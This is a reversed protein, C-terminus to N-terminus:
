VIPNERNLVRYIISINLPYQYLKVSLFLFLWELVETVQTDGVDVFQTVKM